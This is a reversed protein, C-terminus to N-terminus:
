EDSTQNPGRILKLNPCAAKIQATRATAAVSEAVPWDVSSRKSGCDRSNADGGDSLGFAVGRRVPSGL